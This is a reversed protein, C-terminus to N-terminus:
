CRCTTALEVGDVLISSHIDGDESCRLVCDDDQLDTWERDWGWAVLQCWLEAGLRGSYETRAGCRRWDSACFNGARCVVPSWTDSRCSEIPCRYGFSLSKTMLSDAKVPKSFGFNWSFKFSSGYNSSPSLQPLLFYFTPTTRESPLGRSAADPSIRRVSVKPYISKAM